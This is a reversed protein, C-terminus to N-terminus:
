SGNWSALFKLLEANVFDPREEQCLHGCEPIPIATVDKAMGRWVEAVDYAKGVVDSEAGWMTLVPCDILVDADEVDQATDEAMARYDAFSGRLTGPQQYNKVYVEVEDASLMQPNYSWTRFLHTLFAEENGGGILKEPLDPVGMFPFIWYGARARELDFTSALVRTPVNDLIALRDVRGRHDKAFRTSVRAGRDHGVLAITEHGLHDMLAVVDNAMTRKDYGVAPKDSLGYGRLDPAVVTYHEALVPIQKRWGFWTEPFGHLLYVPPGDGATVYHHKLGNLRVTHHTVEPHVDPM